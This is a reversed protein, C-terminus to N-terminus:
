HNGDLQGAVQVLIYKRTMSCGINYSVPSVKSHHRVGESCVVEHLHQLIVFGKCLCTGNGIKMGFGYQM